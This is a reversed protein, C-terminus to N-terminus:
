ADDDENSESADEADDSDAADDDTAQLKKKEARDRRLQEKDRIVAAEDAHEALFRARCADSDPEDITFEPKIEHQLRLEWAYAKAPHYKWFCGHAVGLSPDGKCKEEVRAPFYRRSLHAWDYDKRGKAQCLEKWWAKPKSWLPEVLPWLAASNIMVGDDLDMHFKADQMRPPCISPNPDAPPAGREACETVVAIFASLEDHLRKSRSFQEEAASAKSKDSSARDKNLDVIEGSLQRLAPALHLALLDQLTNETWRHISIFAVFSKQSSALPFYIPRNEYVGLHFKFFDKKLWDCLSQRKGQLIAPSQEKWAELIRQAAPHKLSDSLAEDGTLYLIGAPLTDPSADTLVGEGDAGFRGLAVGVAFSFHAIPDPADFEPEYPPLPDGESRDVAVQAWTQSYRWPSEGPGTFEVSSERHSEHRAFAQTTEAEISDLKCVSGVPVRKADGVQFSITPNLSEMVSQGESTNLAACVAFPNPSFASQGKVDFVSQFRHCRARCTAGTSSFAVGRRFYYEENQPRSTQEGDQEMTKIALGFPRWRVIESLPEFWARGEGGKIYPVWTELQMDKEDGFKSVYIDSLRVEWPKRLHRTNEGTAMGQRVNALDKLKPSALYHRLFAEDWWYVLPAGEIGALQAVEFEYRGVQALLAARKRVTRDADRSRDNLPTPQIAISRRGAPASRAFVAMATSVVEDPIDAFGGRDIDGIARLHRTTLLHERLDQFQSLFMWGRMTLLASAGGPKALELGRELFCAYLDAKGKPYHKKFWSAQALKATGQYPPNGVVIDYAGSKVIQIFRVGAELQEGELRLGLDAEASHEDLFDILRDLVSSQKKRAAAAWLELGDYSTDIVTAVEEDVRLLTGLHDVGSLAEVLKLTVEKPVVFRALEDCLKVLSPDNKALAGLRFVPAVLNLRSVRAEPAYLKAKLWLSAASLQIARADIDVGHLNREVIWQAIQAATWTEGRHRAEEEYLAALLDFAIVLFHGSGCAPDLLKLDRLTEPAASLAEAPQPQPVWYKWHQELEGEIPMLADLAVEGAERQKRFAARRAELSDRVQEFDARWGQKQCMALWTQGLTNHLLWEVMYRETFMQTKPGLEHPEIKGGGAIKDDLREREPDNWFQYVWGLTTDDGWADNLVPENVLELVARLTPVPVPFLATVGVPGFLAPLDLALEAYVAELLALYGRSPESKFEAGYNSFEQAFAPSDWGGTVLAPKLVGHHELIRLFILRNLLTHAAETAALRLELADVEGSKTKAKSPSKTALRSRELLSAELRNRHESRRATLKAKDSPIDLQYESKAENTLELILRERLGRVGKRLAEKAKQDLFTRKM